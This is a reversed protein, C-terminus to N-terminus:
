RANEEEQNKIYEQLDFDEPKEFDFKGEKMRDLMKLLDVEKFSTTKVEYSNNMNNMIMYLDGSLRAEEYFHSTASLSSTFTMERNYAKIHNKNYGAEMILSEKSSVVDNNESKTECYSIGYIKYTYYYKNTNEDFEYSTLEVHYPLFGVQKIIDDTKVDNINFIENFKVVNEPTNENLKCTIPNYTENNLYEMKEFIKNLANLYYLANGSEEAEVLENYYDILVNFVTYGNINRIGADNTVDGEYFVQINASEETPEWFKIFTIESNNLADYAGDAMKDELTDMCYEYASQIENNYGGDGNTQDNIITSVGYAGAGLVGLGTVGWIIKNRLRKKPSGSSAGKNLEKAIAKALQKQEKETLERNEDNAKDFIKKLKKEKGTLRRSEEEAKIEEELRCYTIGELEKPLNEQNTKDKKM